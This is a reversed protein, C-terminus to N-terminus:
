QSTTPTSILNCLSSNLPVAISIHSFPIPGFIQLSIRSMENLSCIIHPVDSHLIPSKGYSKIIRACNRPTGTLPNIPVGGVGLPFSAAWMLLRAETAPYPSNGAARYECAVFSEFSKCATDNVSRTSSALSHWLYIAVCEPQNVRTAWRNPPTIVAQACEEM